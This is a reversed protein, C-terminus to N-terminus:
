KIYKMPIFIMGSITSLNLLLYGINWITTYNKNEKINFCHWIIFGSLFRSSLGGIVSLGLFKLQNFTLNNNM